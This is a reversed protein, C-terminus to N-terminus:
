DIFFRWILKLVKVAGTIMEGMIRGSKRRFHLSHKSLDSQRETAGGTAKDITPHTMGTDTASCSSM